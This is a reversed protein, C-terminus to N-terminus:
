VTEIIEITEIVGDGQEDYLRLIIATGSMTPLTSFWKAATWGAYGSLGSIILVYRGDAEDYHLLIMAYDTVTLGQSYDNVMRYKTATASSYIHIGQVDVDMYVPLVPQGGVTVHHYYWNVLNVTAGGTTIINGPRYIGTVHTSNYNAAQWDMYVELGGSPALTGLASAVYMGAAVDITHSPNCPGRPDCAGVLMMADIAGEPTVFPLPFDSLDYLAAGLLWDVSNIALTEQEPSDLCHLPFAMYVVSESGGSGSVVVASYSTGTYQIVEAGGNTPSVGDPWMPTFGWAFSTPLDQTVPHDPDTVTLGDDPNTDDVEYEAHAVNVMFDDTDHNFGIDEGELLINGGQALYAELTIVDIPDVAWNYYDGCTWIVVKFKTLFDLPPNGMSSENWVLYDYGADTLASAFEALSTIYNWGNGGNNDDVILINYSAYVLVNASEVNNATISEGPVPPAYATVNYVGDITPTWLYSIKYSTGTALEPITESEVITGNIMLFLEVDAENNSGANYVTTNLLSGGSAIYLPADLVVNLEHENEPPLVIMLEPDGFLNIEYYCYRDYANSVRGANDEKSDQNAIGVNFIDEGLVADWFERDYHQSPGDTTYMYGWGYRSNAIFAVAGHAETTLHESMCDYYSYAGSSLRNDFSGSYCGWSYGIFYLEDNTLLTDVDSSSMKMLSNVNAHGIHNLLHVNDNIVSVIESKPWDNGPYERDYLTSVSFRTAYPSNEFGVTTYGHDSSGEKIEDKFNGGWKADGLWDMDEGVMWVKRLHEDVTPAATQYYLTKNVFNQVETQSDVCARGVYVEAFLDVEGGAPGDSPEAYIGDADYDFTGNLCAYYMDAAIDDDTDGDYSVYFGRHPIIENGSEGGVDGGDGDGALLVYITGWDNYADIIFNRIKTQNDKGGDPRDGNYNAYIWEVTVITASIGRSIKDDRLAQFNYPGPTSNLDENTIIVYEYTAAQQSAPYTEVVEPNDVINKVIEHRQLYGQFACTEGGNESTVEVELSISEYYFLKGTEPIYEVPYLNVLLIEYGMKGHVSVNAYLMGPFPESSGYVMENPLNTAPADPSEATNARVAEQGYEVLYSGLLPIKKGTIARVQEFRTGFPLLIKATKFPLVPLGTEEYQSLGDMIVSVYSDSMKPSSDHMFARSVEIKPEPFCYTISFKPTYESTEQSADQDLTSPLMMSGVESDRLSVEQSNSLGFDLASLFTVGLLVILLLSIIPDKNM